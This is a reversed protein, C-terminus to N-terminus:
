NFQGSNRYEALSVNWYWSNDTPFHPLANPPDGLRAGIRKRHSSCIWFGLTFIPPCVHPVITHEIKRRLGLQLAADDVGQKKMFEEFATSNDHLAVFYKLWVPILEPLM